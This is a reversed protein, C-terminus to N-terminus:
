HWLYKIFSYAKRKSPYELNKENAYAEREFSINQYARYRDMYFISRLLWEFIYFMYFPLILLEQQQRLHIKEHNILVRDDKLSNSKVIIFPWFSLGVYNKYFVHKFVLIM